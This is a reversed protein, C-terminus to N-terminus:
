NGLNSFWQQFKEGIVPILKMEGKIAYILAYLWSLFTIAWFATGLWSNVFREVVNSFILMIILGIMQKIHFNTFPNKKELNMFIAILTGVFTFYCLVALSKGEEITQTNM